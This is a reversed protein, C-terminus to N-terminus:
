HWSGHCSNQFYLRNVNCLPKKFSSPETIENEIKASYPLSNDAREKLLSRRGTKLEAETNSSKRM